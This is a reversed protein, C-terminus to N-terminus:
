NYILAVRRKLGLKNHYLLEILVIILIAYQLVQKYQSGLILVLLIKYRNAKSIFIQKIKNVDHVYM